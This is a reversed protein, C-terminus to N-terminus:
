YTRADMTATSVDHHRAMSEYTSAIAKLVDGTCTWRASVAKEWDRYQKVFEREPRGGEFPSRAHVGRM